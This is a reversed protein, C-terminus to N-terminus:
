HLTQVVTMLVVEKVSVDFTGIYQEVVPLFHFFLVYWSTITGTHLVTNNLQMLM